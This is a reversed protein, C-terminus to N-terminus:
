NKQFHIVQINKTTKVIYICTKYSTFVIKTKWQTMSIIKQQSKNSRCVVSNSKEKFVKNKMKLEWPRSNHTYDKCGLCYTTESKKGLKIPKIKLQTNKM